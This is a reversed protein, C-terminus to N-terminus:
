NTRSAGDIEMLNWHWLRCDMKSFGSDDFERMRRWVKFDSGEHKCWVSTRTVLVLNFWLQIKCTYKWCYFLYQKKSVDRTNCVWFFTTPWCKGWKSSTRIGEPHQVDAISQGNGGKEPFEIEGELWLGACGAYLRQHPFPKNTVWVPPRCVAIM